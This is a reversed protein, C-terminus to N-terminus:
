KDLTRGARKERDRIILSVYDAQIFDARSFGLRKAFRTIDHRRGELELFAGVQTEDLSIALRGQRLVTRHKRYAFSPQLGLAKLIRRVQGSNLVATEFEERVKFSRSKQPAGKFTLSARKGSKRVRIAQRAAAFRGDPFDYLTNEELFRDRCVVAGLGLLRARAAKPDGIRIKVEIETV